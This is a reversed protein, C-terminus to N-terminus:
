GRPDLELREVARIRGRELNMVDVDFGALRAENQEAILIGTGARAIRTVAKAVDRATTPALGLTPEDMLILRPATM